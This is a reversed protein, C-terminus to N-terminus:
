SRRGMVSASSLLIYVKAFACDGNIYGKMFRVYGEETLISTESIGCWMRGLCGSWSGM